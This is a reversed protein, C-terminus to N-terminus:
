WIGSQLKLFLCKKIQTVLIDKIIKNKHTYNFYFADM